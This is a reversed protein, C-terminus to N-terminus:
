STFKLIKQTKENIEIEVQGYTKDPMCYGAIFEDLTLRQQLFPPFLSTQLATMIGHPMGDSGFILDKGPVFDAKDILMRFPNNRELYSSPLRDHYIISDTSFNPQMSLIIGIEKADHAMPEDIFQCHEMRIQPFSFGKANLKRVTHIVQAIGMEGIAHIAAAKNLLSVEQLQQSLEEDTHLLSPKKGDKYPQKLAATGAGLAGDTFFKIGKIAIKVEPSLSKFTSLDTWYATRNHYPSSNIISYITEGTLLMDEVYYVGKKYLGDFFTKIKQTTPEVQNALFIMMRAFHTEYWSANTYNEIVDPYKEKLITEAAANMVFSHLSLNVIIVPPFRNLEDKSFSYLGTNWGLVVSVKEKNLSQVMELAVKKSTIEQLNICDNFLAYLSPHNHHDKLLPICIKQNM